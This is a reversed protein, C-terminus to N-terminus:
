QRAHAHLYELADLVVTRYHWDLWAATQGAVRDLGHLEEETQVRGVFRHYVCLVGLLRPRGAPAGAILPVGCAARLGQGALVAIGRRDTLSPADALDPVIVPARERLVQAALCGQDAAVQGFHDLHDRSLGLSVELELGRRYPDVVHLEGHDSDAHVLAARMATELVLARDSSRGAPLLDLGPAPQRMRAPFWRDGREPPAMALVAGALTRVKIHHRQSARRLLGFATEGDPMRYRERLVGLAEAIMPRTRLAVRLDAVQQHLRELEDHGTDSPGPETPRAVDDATRVEVGALDDETAAAGLARAAAADTLVRLAVRRARALGALRVVCPVGHEGVRRTTSFDLVLRHPRLRLILQAASQLRESTSADLDGLAQIVPDGEASWSLRLQSDQSAVGVDAPAMGPTIAEVQKSDQGIDIL